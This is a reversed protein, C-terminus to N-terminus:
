CGAGEALDSSTILLGSESGIFEVDLPVLGPRDAPTVNADSSDVVSTASVDLCVNAHVTAGTTDLEAARGSFKRVSSDGVIRWGQEQLKNSTDLSGSLATGVLYSLPDASTDGDREANVADTYAQYVEEAAAFAEEESAFATTPTPTPESEPACGCLAGAVLLLAGIGALARPATPRLTM